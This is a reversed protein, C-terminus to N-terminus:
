ASYGRVEATSSRIEVSEPPTLKLTEAV